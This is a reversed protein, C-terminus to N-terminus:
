HQLGAIFLAQAIGGGKFRDEFTLPTGPSFRSLTYHGVRLNIRLGPAKWDFFNPHRNSQPMSFLIPGERSAQRFVDGLSQRITFSPENITCTM